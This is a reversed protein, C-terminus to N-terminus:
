PLLITPAFLDVKPDNQIPLENPTSVFRRYSALQTIYKDEEPGFLSVAGKVDVSDPSAWLMGLTLALSYQDDGLISVKIDKIEMLPLVEEITRLFTYINDQGGNIKIQTDLSQLGPKKVAKKASSSAESLNGPALSLGGFTLGLEQSLGEISSLYLLVDKRPPVASDLVSVRERLVEKDLKSLISVKSMLNQLEVKRTKSKIMAARANKYIPLVAWFFMMVSLLGVAIAMVLTKHRNLRERM